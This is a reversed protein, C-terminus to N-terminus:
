SQEIKKNEARKKYYYIATGSFVAYVVVFMSKGASDIEIQMFPIKELIWIYFLMTRALYELILSYVIYM